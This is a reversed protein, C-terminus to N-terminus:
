TPKLRVAPDPMRMVQDAVRDAEQEYKDNPAGIKLKAQIPLSKKQSEQKATCRPCGGDCACRSSRALVSGALPERVTLAQTSRTNSQVSRGRAPGFSTTRSRQSSTLGAIAHSM